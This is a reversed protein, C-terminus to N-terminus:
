SRSASVRQARMPVTELCYTRALPVLSDYVLLPDGCIDGGLGCNGERGGGAVAKGAEAAAAAPVERRKERARECVCVFVKEAETEGERKYIHDLVRM